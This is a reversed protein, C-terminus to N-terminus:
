FVTTAYFSAGAPPPSVFSINSGAITYAQTAGPTQAVGGIFVMINSTPSPAYPVGSIALSFSTTVGDFGGSVDDLNYIAPPVYPGWIMGTTTTPDVMLIQGPTGIPLIAPTDNATASLLDGKANFDSKYVAATRLKLPTVIRLDDTGTETEVQTALEAIGTQTETSTRNALKNATILVTDSASAPVANAEAQTAIQGGGLQTETAQRVTVDVQGTLTEAITISNDSSAINYVADNLVTLLNSNGNIAPTVLINSASLTQWELGSTQLSNAVLIQGDVGIPLIVPIDNGSASLLDGKANFDSKFVAASRLTDPTIINTTNLGALAEATTALEAGGLQATTAQVVDLNFLGTPASTVGLTNGTSTINYVADTLAAQVDTNGNIAPSVVIESADIQGSAIYGALKQPTILVSDSLGADTEAQTAIEGGGIQSETAQKVTVDVQGVATEAVVISNDSSAINYIADSLAGQVNTNGNILPSLLIYNANLVGSSFLNGLKLPTVIVNDLALAQTEVNTAIQAGGLQTETAQTVEVNFLGTPTSTVTVTLGTSTINYVADTLASQVTTNGNITPSLLIDTADIAGSSIVGFLKAPTLARTDDVGANSEAQTAIEIVGPVTETAYPPDYGVNLFQWGLSTSLFWDGQTVTTFVGGPPTFGGASEVIVFYEQNTISAVPLAAGLTFGQLVGEPTVYTMLGAGSILGAFTLNNSILLANIQEQLLRGQNASLASDISFSSINDTITTVGINSVLGSVGTTPLISITGDSAIQVNSGIKVRGPVLATALPTTATWSVGDWVREQYTNTDFWFDGAFNATPSSAGVFSFVGGSAPSVPLWASGNFFELRDFDKNYRLSGEPSSPREVTTGAPIAAAGTHPFASGIPFVQVYDTAWYINGVGDNTLVSGASGAVLSWNYVPAPSTSSTVFGLTAAGARNLTITGDPQITIGTGQKVGQTYGNLVQASNLPALYQAVNLTM